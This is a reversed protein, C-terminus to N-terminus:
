PRRGGFREADALSAEGSIAGVEASESIFLDIEREAIIEGLVRSGPGIVVKPKKRRSGWGRSREIIVDGRVTANETIWIDGSVTSVDGGVESGVVKLEGNVNGVDGSVSGGPGVEIKGNVASVEGSIVANEGIRISGNVSEVDDAILGNGVRISGNVTGVDRLQVNDDIRITGNVTEISGDVVASAGVSISGNVTSQSGSQTGDDISISKNVSAVAAPGAFSMAALLGLVVRRYLGSQM